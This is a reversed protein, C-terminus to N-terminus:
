YWTGALTTLMKEGIPLFNNHRETLGERAASMRAANPDEFRARCRGLVFFVDM